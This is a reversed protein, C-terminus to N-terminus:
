PNSPFSTFCIYGYFLQTFWSFSQYGDEYENENTYEDSDIILSNNEENKSNNKM